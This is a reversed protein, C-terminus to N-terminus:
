LPRHHYHRHNDCIICQPEITPQSVYHGYAKSWHPLPRTIHYRRYLPILRHRQMICTFDLRTNNVGHHRGYAFREEHYIVIRHIGCFMCIINLIYVAANCSGWEIFKFYKMNLDLWAEAWAKVTGPSCYQSSLDASSHMVDISLRDNYSIVVLCYLVLNM